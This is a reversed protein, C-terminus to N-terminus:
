QPDDAGQSCCPLEETDLDRVHDIAEEVTAPPAQGFSKAWTDPSIALRASATAVGIAIVLLCTAIQVPRGAAHGLRSIGLGLAALIPVTGLWFATLVLAGAIPSGTGAATIVFAYLWGCPLLPTALGITAARTTPRLRRSARHAASLASRLIAPTKAHPIRVGLHRLLVAGGLAVMTVGALIAAARQWGMVSGGMDIAAGLAGAAAGLAAYTALRGAHYAVHLRARGHGAAALIAFCGCMGACHVSGLASAAVVAILLPIM